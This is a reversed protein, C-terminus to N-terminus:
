SDVVELFYRIDRSSFILRVVITDGRAMALSAEHYRQALSLLVSVDSIEPFNTLVRLIFYGTEIIRM